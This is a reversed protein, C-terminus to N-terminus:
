PMGYLAFTSGATFAAAAITLFQISTVTTTSYHMAQTQVVISTGATQSVAGGNGHVQHIKSSVHNPVLIEGASMLGAPGIDANAIIGAVMGGAAGLLENAVVAGTRSYLYQSYYFAPSTDGNIRMLLWSVYQVPISAGTSTSALNYVIRLHRFTSPIGTFSVITQAAVTTQQEILQQAAGPAIDGAAVQGWGSAGTGTRRLVAATAGPSSAGIGVKTELLEAIDQLRSIVGHLEFGVDDRNTLNTPNALVDLSGPYNPSYTM